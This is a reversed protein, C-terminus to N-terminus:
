ATAPVAPTATAPERTLRHAAYAWAFATTLLASGMSTVQTVLMFWPLFAVLLVATLVPRFRRTLLVIGLATSGLVTLLMGPMGVFMFSEELWPTWYSGFVGLGLLTYGAFLMRWVWREAGRPRRDRYVLFAAATFAAVVFVWIKGYTLYVTDPDSWQLLPALRESVPVSWAATLGLELDEAGERTAHRSMAHLQGVVAGVTATTWATRVALRRTAPKDLGRGRHGTSGPNVSTSM